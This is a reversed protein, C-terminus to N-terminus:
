TAPSTARTASTSASTSTRPASRTGSAGPSASSCRRTSTSRGRASPRDDDSVPFIGKMADVWAWQGDVYVENMMHGSIHACYLRAPLGAIQCLCAYLRSVENCMIAGRKLLEEETGGNFLGPSALGADRNDRVRRMLALAKERGSMSERVHESVIAELMPRAGGVYRIELPTHEAYLYEM